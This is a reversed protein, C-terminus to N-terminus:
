WKMVNVIIVIIMIIGNDTTTTTTATTTTTGIIIMIDDCRWIDEVSGSTCPIIVVIGNSDEWCILMWGTLVVDVVAAIIGWVWSKQIVFAIMAITM